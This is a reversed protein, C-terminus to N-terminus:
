DYFWSERGLDGIQMDNVFAIGQVAGARNLIKPYGALSFEQGQSQSTIASDVGLVIGGPTVAVIALSM